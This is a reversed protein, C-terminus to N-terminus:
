KENSRQVLYVYKDSRRVRISDVAQYEPVLTSYNAHNMLMYANDVLQHTTALSTGRAATLYFGAEYRLTDHNYLYLDRDKTIQAIRQADDRTQAGPSHIARSPLVILSFGLRAAILFSSFGHIRYNPYRLMIIVALAMPVAALSWKWVLGQMHVTKDNFFVVSSGGLVGIALIILLIDALKRLPSHNMQDYLYLCGGLYLPVFM